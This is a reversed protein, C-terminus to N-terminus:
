QALKYKKVLEANHAEQAEWLKSSEEPTLVDPTCYLKELHAKAEPTALGKKFAEQIIKKEGEPMGKPAFVTFIQNYVSDIGQEKMTPVDPLMPMRKESLVGLPIIDGSAIYPAAAALSVCTADAQDAILKVIREKDGANAVTAPTIEGGKYGDAVYLFGFHSMAGFSMPWRVKGPNAKMYDLMEIATRPPLRKNGVFIFTSNVAVGLMEFDRFSHDVVKTTTQVSMTPHEWFLTYGDPKARLVQKAGVSGTGGEINSVVMPQPLFKNAYEIAVRASVDSGGGAPFPVVLQVPKEPYEALAPTSLAFICMFALIIRRM